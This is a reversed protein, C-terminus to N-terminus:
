EESTAVVVGAGGEGARGLRAGPHTASHVQKLREISVKTYVQTTELKAHGLIEQIFRVDAGNELM